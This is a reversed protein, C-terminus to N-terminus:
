SRPRNFHGDVVQLLSTQQRPAVRPVGNRGGQTVQQLVDGALDYTWVDEAEGDHVHVAVRRGDSSLRPYDYVRGPAKIPTDKGDRNVWVLTRLAADRGRTDLERGRRYVLTGNGAVAFQVQGGESGPGELVVTESGTVDLRDLDFPRALLSGKWSYVVQGTGVYRGQSGRTTLHRREHTTLSEAVIHFDNPDPGQVTYIVAKGGPLMQPDRHSLEGKTTDLTTAVRPTGGSAAIQWLSNNTTGFLIVDRSWDTGAIWVEDPASGITEAVGGAVSMKM